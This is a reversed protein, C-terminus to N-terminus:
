GPCYLKGQVSGNDLEPQMWQLPEVFLSTGVEGPDDRTEACGLCSAGDDGDSQLPTRTFAGQPCHCFLQRSLLSPGLLLLSAAGCYHLWPNVPQTVKREAPMTAGRRM